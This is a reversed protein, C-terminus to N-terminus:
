SKMLFPNYSVHRYSVYRNNSDRNEATVKTVYAGTPDNESM